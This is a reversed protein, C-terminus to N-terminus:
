STDFMRCGYSNYKMKNLFTISESLPLLKILRNGMQSLATLNRTRIEAPVGM